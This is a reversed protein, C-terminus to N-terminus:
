KNEGLSFKEVFSEWARRRYSEAYSASRANLIPDETPEIGNPLILPDFRIGNCAGDSQVQSRMINITGANVTKRDEPWAVAPNNEDDNSNAFTFILDFTVSGAKLKNMLDLQLADVHDVSNGVKDSELSDDTSRSPIAQWRM